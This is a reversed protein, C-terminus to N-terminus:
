EQGFGVTEEIALSLKDNLIAYSRYPPLDLRNFCTHAKPLQNVEGTKDITFRRPGDSGHLDVFGNVPVRSTGTVFQLLRARKEGDFSEVAKWFWQIQVDSEKYGRYETNRRWDEIDIEHVGCILLELEREDFVEILNSPIFDRFGEIFANFQDEIRKCIRRETVLEVYEKKNVEIVLIQAGNPKLEVTVIEGFKEEDVTFYLEIVDTIDNELIWTLSRFFDIDVSEMDKMTIKKNLIMKYFPLIFPADLFRQHFIALGVIRGIFKFYLLHEPNVSSNPSIQRTYNDVASYEFLGFLPNFLERSLLLFWERAVGGYDLGEEGYFKIMLRKKLDEVSLKMIQAFSDEFIYDRRVLIHCQGSHTRMQPQSRFYTVKRKYDRKYKPVNEDSPNSIRPDDWTTTKTTHDVFYVRGTNTLRMEWGAPLPGLNLMGRQSLIMVRPDQWTTRRNSHDVFYARGDATFRQEWGAPLSISNVNSAPVTARNTATGGVVHGVNPPSERVASRRLSDVSATPHHWTTTRTNHDVYYVRNMSDVRREWNPPLDGSISTSPPSRATSDRMASLVQGPYAPNRMSTSGAVQPSGTHHHDSRSHHRQVTMGNQLVMNGASTSSTVPVPRNIGAPLGGAEHVVQQVPGTLVVPRISDELTVTIRIIGSTPNEM